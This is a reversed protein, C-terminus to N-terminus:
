WSTMQKSAVRSMQSYLDLFRRKTLQDQCGVEM